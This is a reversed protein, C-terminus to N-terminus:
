DTERPRKGQVLKKENSKTKNRRTHGEKMKPKPQAVNDTKAKKERYMRTGGGGERIVEKQLRAVNIKRAREGNSIPRKEYVKSANPGIERGGGPKQFPKVKSPPQRAGGRKLGPLRKQPIPTTM